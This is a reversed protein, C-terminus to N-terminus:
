NFLRIGRTRELELDTTRRQLPGGGGFLPRRRKGVELVPVTPPARAKRSAAGRM